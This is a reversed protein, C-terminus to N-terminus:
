VRDPLKGLLQMGSISKVGLALPALSLHVGSSTQGRLLEGLAHRFSQGSVAVM